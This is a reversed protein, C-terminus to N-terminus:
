SAVSFEWVRDEDVDADISLDIASCPIKVGYAPSYAAASIDITLGPPVALASDGHPGSLLLSRADSRRAEVGPALHFHWRLRHRGRGIFRDVLSLNGSPKDFRFTREHTIPQPLREYGHHRGVYEVCDGREHFSTTEAHSTEFLRFLWDPRLENQEVGDIM